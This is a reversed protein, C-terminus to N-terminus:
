RETKGLVIPKGRLVRCLHRLPGAWHLLPQALFAPVLTFGRSGGPPEARAAAGRHARLWREARRVCWVTNLVTYALASASWVLLEGYRGHVLLTLFAALLAAPGIFWWVTDLGEKFLVATNRLRYARLAPDSLLRRCGALSGHAVVAYAKSLAAVTAYRDVLNFVPLVEMSAGASSLKYGILLDDVPEEYMGISVLTDHRVFLGAGVGYVVPEVVTALGAPLPSARIRGQSLIRHAETGARRRLDALAHARLLADARGSRAAHPRRLQLPLQQILDPVQGGNRTAVASLHRLTTRDPQSDADYLGIYTFSATADAPLLGPLSEVAYVLQSSKGGEDAYHLHHLGVGPHEAALEPLIAAAVERTTPVADVEALLTGAPDASERTRRAIGAARASPVVGALRTAADTAGSEHLAAALTTLGASAARKEREERETTVVVIHLLGPPHDLDAAARVTEALLDQERLAPVLLVVHPVPGTPPKLADRRLDLVRATFAARATLLVGWLLVGWLVVLAVATM